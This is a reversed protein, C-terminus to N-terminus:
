RAADCLQEESEFQKRTIIKFKPGLVVLVAQQVMLPLGHLSKDSEDVSKTYWFCLMDPIAQLARTTAAGGCRQTGFLCWRSTAFLVVADSTADLNSDNNHCKNLM